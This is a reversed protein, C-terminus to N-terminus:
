EGEAAIYDLAAALKRAGDRDLVYEDGAVDWGRLLRWAEVARRRLAGYEHRPTALRWCSLYVDGDGWDEVELMHTKCACDVKVSM